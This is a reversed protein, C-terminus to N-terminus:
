PKRGKRKYVVVGVALAVGAGAVGGVVVYLYMAIQTRTQNTPEPSSAPQQDSPSQSAPLSNTPSSTPTPSLTPPFAIEFFVTESAGMNGETDNAFITLTHTGHPLDPLTDNGAVTVNGQGDLSYGM